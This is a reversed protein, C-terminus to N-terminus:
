NCSAVNFAFSPPGNEDAGPLYAVHVVNHFRIPAGTGVVTGQFNVTGHEVANNRNGEFGFWETLHGTVQMDETGGVSTVNGTSPDVTGQSWFSVTANGTFTSTAWFDGAGNTTQHSVGNGTANIDTFDNLVPAPCNSLNTTPGTPTGFQDVLTNYHITQSQGPDASATAALSLAALGLILVLTAAARLRVPSHRM